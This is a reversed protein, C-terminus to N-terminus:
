NDHSMDEILNLTYAIMQDYQKLSQEKKNRLNQLLENLKDLTLYNDDDIVEKISSVTLGLKRYKEIKIIREIVEEDYLDYGSADLCIPKILGKDKYYRIVRKNTSMSKAIERTYKM